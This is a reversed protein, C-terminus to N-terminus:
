SPLSLEEPEPDPLACGAGRQPITHLAGRLVDSEQQLSNLDFAGKVLWRAAACGVMQFPSFVAVSVHAKEALMRLRHWISSPLGHLQREPVLRLDLFVAQLNGDRLLMDTAKISDKVGHARLWLVRQRLELPLSALDLGDAADVWALAGQAQQGLHLMLLGAGAAQHPSVVEVLKGPLLEATDTVASSSRLFGAQMAAPFRAAVLSRLQALQANM